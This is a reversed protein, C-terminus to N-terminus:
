MVPYANRLTRLNTDYNRIGAYLTSDYIGVDGHTGLLKVAEVGNYARVEDLEDLTTGDADNIIPHHTSRYTGSKVVCGDGNISLARRYGEGPQDVSLRRFECADRECRIAHAGGISSADGSIAVDEVVVPATGDGSYSDIELAQGGRQIEIASDDIETRGADDGISIVDETGGAHDFTISVDEITASGLPGTLRIAEGTAAPFEFDVNEIVFDDGHDLRVGRQNTDEPRNRDVVVTADRVASNDGDLRINAVNNNRYEGGEVLVTGEEGSSYLGNSPFDGIECDRFILTGEHYPSVSVGIPGLGGSRPPNADRPTNEAYEGGDPLRLGKVLSIGEPDTVDFHAPGGTGTDHHGVVDINQVWLDNTQAQIARLGTNQLTFDFTFNRM